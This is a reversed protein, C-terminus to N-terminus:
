SHSTGYSSASCAEEMWKVPVLQPNKDRFNKLLSDNSHDGGVHARVRNENNALM